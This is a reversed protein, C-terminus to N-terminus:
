RNALLAQYDIKEAAPQKTTEQPQVVVLQIKDLKTEIATVQAIMKDMDAAFFQKVRELVEKAAQSTKDLSANEVAGQLASIAELVPTLDTKPIEVAKIADELSNLRFEIGSYDSEPIDINGIDNRVGTIANLLPQLHFPINLPAPSEPAPLKGLEARVVEEIIKRVRKYDVDAGGGGNLNPNMIRLVKHEDFKEGYNDAKTTYGSDTYVTYTILIDLGLGTPRRADDL